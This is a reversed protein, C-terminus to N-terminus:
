KTYVLEPGLRNSIREDLRAFALNALAPSTPSGQPLRGRHTCLRAVLVAVDHTWTWRREKQKDFLLLDPNVEPSKLTLLPTRIHSLAPVLHSVTISPFFDKLDFSVFYKQRLHRRANALTPNPQESRAGFVGSGLEKSAPNLFCALINRQIRMLPRNPVHLVRPVGSGRPIEKRHYLPGWHRSPQRKFYSPRFAFAHLLRSTMWQDRSRLRGVLWNVMARKSPTPMRLFTLEERRHPEPYLWDLLDRRTPYQRRLKELMSLWFPKKRRSGTELSRSFFLHFVLPPPAKRLVRRAHECQFDESM